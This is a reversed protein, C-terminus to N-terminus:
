RQHTEGYPVLSAHECWRWQRHPALVLSRRVPRVHECWRWQLHPVLVLSRRVPRLARNSNSGSYSHLNLKSMRAVLRARRALTLSAALADDGKRDVLSADAKANLLACVIDLNNNDKAALMLATEGLGCLASVDVSAHMELLARVTAARM